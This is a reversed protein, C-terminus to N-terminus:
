IGNLANVRYERSSAGFRIVSGVNLEKPTQARIWVGDLNTGHGSGLDVLLVRGTGDMYIKAHQRSISLHELPVGCSPLRGFICEQGPSTIDVVLSGVKASDKYIDLM